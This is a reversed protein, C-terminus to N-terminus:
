KRAAPEYLITEPYSYFRFALLLHRIDGSGAHEHSPRGDVPDPTKIFGKEHVHFFRVPAVAEPFCAPFHEIGGIGRDDMETFAAAAQSVIPVFQIVVAYAIKKLFM